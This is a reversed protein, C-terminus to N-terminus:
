LKNGGARWKDRATVQITGNMRNNFLDTENKFATNQSMNYLLLGKSVQSKMGIGSIM